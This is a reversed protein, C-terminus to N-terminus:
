VSLKLIQCVKEIQPKLLLHLSEQEDCLKRRDESEVMNGELLESISNVLRPTTPALQAHLSENVLATSRCLSQTV